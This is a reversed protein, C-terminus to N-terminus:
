HLKAWREDSLMALFPSPISRDYTLFLHRMARTCGVYLVRRQNEMHERIDEPDTANTEGPMRGAEVHAIGVIPFELGKAAHLTMVKVCREELRVEKSSMFKAPLDHEELQGALARGLSNSPVLVAAANVPLRLHRTAACIQDALWRAQDEGGRAAYTVPLPGGHVFEQGAAEADAGDMGALLDGAAEAIQRTSRYNRRLIRTRGAVQLQDHVSRWRFGRNYLSQNADATLFLGTPDRCLEVCLALAAPPLDQAEDVIVYDWRRAFEGATVRDLAFQRVQGWTFLGQAQLHDRYVEYVKWVASRLSANFPIARGARQADLYADLTRCNQGEIVWEFEKLLYGDRLHQLATSVLLKDLDGM